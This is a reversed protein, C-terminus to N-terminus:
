GSSTQNPSLSKPVLCKELSYLKEQVSPSSALAKLEQIQLAEENEQISSALFQLIGLQAQLYKIYKSAAQFMEATNMKEGGPVIKGLERTKETIKRRRNRAAVSQASLPLELGPSFDPVLPQPNLFFEDALCSTEGPYNYNYDDEYIEQCKPYPYPYQYYQDLEQPISNDLVPPPALYPLSLDNPDTLPQDVFAYKPYFSFNRQFGLLDM